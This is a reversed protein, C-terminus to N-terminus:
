SNKKKKSVAFAAAILVPLIATPITSKCGQEPAANGSDTAVGTEGGSPTESTVESTDESSDSETVTDSEALLENMEAIHRDAQERDEFFMIEKIYLGEGVTAIGTYDFLSLKIGVFRGGFAGLKSLDVLKTQWVNEADLTIGARNKTSASSAKDSLFNVALVNNEKLESIPKVTVTAYKYKSLQLTDGYSFSINTMRADTALIKLAGNEIEYSVNGSATVSEKCTDNEFKMFPDGNAQERAKGYSLIVTNVVSREAGDSPRNVLTYDTGGLKDLTVMATSGGGDLIFATDIDLEVCLEDLQSIKIGVSYGSQRGDNALIVVKGDKKIGLVTMPYATNNTSNKSKGDIIVPIHGGVANKMRRWVETNGMSDTVSVSIEVSDGIAFNELSSLRTGRATLIIRNQKMEQKAEGPKTIGTVKGVIKAGHCVTYDADCDIIIEYADSLAYNSVSGRDTYMILTNNAPLRNIGMTGAKAGSTKDNITVSVQPNGLVAVGDETIGFSYFTGEYPTEQQMHASTIIEGDYMNFGRPVTLVKTTVSDSYGKYSHNKGLVRSHASTMWLDGNVAAIPTKDPNDVKFQALTKSVTKVNTAYAGGGVVDFYLDSQTPDFEVTWFKQLGYKSSTSLSYATKTVGDYLETATRSVEGSIKDTAAGAVATFSCLAGCIFAVTLIISIVSIKNKKM